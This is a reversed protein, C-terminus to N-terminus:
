IENKGMWPIVGNVRYYGTLFFVYDGYEERIFSQPTPNVHDDQRGEPRIIQSSSPPATSAPALKPSGAAFCFGGTGCQPTFLNSTSEELIVFQFYNQNIKLKVITIMNGSKHILNPHSSPIQKDCDTRTCAMNRTQDDSLIAMNQPGKM